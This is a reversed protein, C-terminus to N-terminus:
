CYSVTEVVIINPAIIVPERVNREISFLVTQPLNIIKQKQQIRSKSPIKIVYLREFISARPIRIYFVWLSITLIFFFFLM